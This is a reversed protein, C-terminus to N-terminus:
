GRGGDQVAAIADEDADFAPACATVNRNEAFALLHTPTALLVPQRFCPFRTTPTFIDRREAGTVSSPALLAAAAVAALEHWSFSPM